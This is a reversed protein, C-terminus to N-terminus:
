AARAVGHVNPTRDNGHCMAILRDWEELMRESGFLRESTTEITRRRNATWSQREVVATLIADAIDTVSRTAPVYGLQHQEITLALESQPEVLAIVPCGASWYAMSKSPYAFRYVEPLLSIVGYDCVRTAAHATEVSQHPLFIIRRGLLEGALETLEAKASGEGMFLLQFPVRGAILRAAAVLRELGQFRGINGAFLFRVTPSQVDLPEPLTPKLLPDVPLPPNNVISIREAPVGRRMVSEAMDRSLVVIRQAALCTATDWRLFREYLRGHSLDGSIVAAEPHLDQCHYIFPTGRLARIIRLACGMLVPPHTNAIVLDYRAVWLTHLVCRMLFWIFNIGRVIRWRKREPLLRVRKVHVGGIRERWPQRPIRVDNYAPQATIVTVDHGQASQHEAIMRLIRAYPTTDPAYHRYIALIRMVILRNRGRDPVRNGDLSRRHWGV